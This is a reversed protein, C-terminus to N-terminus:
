CYSSTKAKKAETEDTPEIQIDRKEVNSTNCLPIQFTTKLALELWDLGAFLGANTLACSAQIHWNENKLLTELNMREVMEKVDIASTKDQKNAYILIPLGQLEKRDLNELEIKAEELRSADSSDIVFIVGEKDKSFHPWHHRIEESGGIDWVEFTIDNHKIFEINFGITPFFTSTSAIESDKLQYLITTGGAEDLGLMVIKFKETNYGDM